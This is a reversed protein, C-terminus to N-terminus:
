LKSVLGETGGQHNVTITEGNKEMKCFKYYRGNIQREGNKVVVWGESKLQEVKKQLKM